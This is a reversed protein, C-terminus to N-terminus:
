EIGIEKAINDGVYIERNVILNGDRYIRVTHKGPKIKYQNDRGSKVTFGKSDDVFVTVGSTDGSFYLFSRQDDASVGEKYGCGSFYLSSLLVLSILFYRM